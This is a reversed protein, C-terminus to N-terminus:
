TVFYNTKYETQYVLRAATSCNVFRVTCIIKDCLIKSSTEKIQGTGLHGYRMGRYIQHLRTSGRLRRHCQGQGRIKSQSGRRGDMIPGFQGISPGTQKAEAAAASGSDIGEAHDDVDVTCSTERGQDKRLQSSSADVM